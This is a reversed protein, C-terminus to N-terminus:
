QELTSVDGDPLGAYQAKVTYTQSFSGGPSVNQSVSAPAVTLSTPALCPNGGGAERGGTGDGTGVGDHVAGDVVPPNGKSSNCGLLLVAGLAFWRLGSRSTLRM